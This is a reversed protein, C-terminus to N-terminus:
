TIFGDIEGNLLAGIAEIQSEFTLIDYQVNPYEGPLLSEIIDGEIIGLRRGDLDGMTQIGSNKLAFAAYPYRHVPKTFAMWTRREPTENAGFLIDIDGSSLGSYVE